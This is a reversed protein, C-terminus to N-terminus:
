LSQSNFLAAKIELKSKLKQQISNKTFISGNPSSTLRASTPADNTQYKITSIAANSFTM